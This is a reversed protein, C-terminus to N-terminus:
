KKVFKAIEQGIQIFGFGVGAYYPKEGVSINRGATFQLAGDFFSFGIGAGVQVTSSTTTRFGGVVKGTSDKISPDFDGAFNLLSVNLGIGPSLWGLTTVRNDVAQWENSSDTRILKRSHFTVGITVGPAAVMGSKIEDGKDDRIVGTRRVWFVSPDVSVVTRLKKIAIRFERSIGGNGEGGRAQVLITLTDGDAAKYKRLDITGPALLQVFRRWITPWESDIVTHFEPNGKAALFDTLDEWLTRVTLLIDERADIRRPSAAELFLAVDTKFKAAMGKLSKTDLGFVETGMAEVVFVNRDNTFFDTIATLRPQYGRILARLAAERRTQEGESLRLLSHECTKPAKACEPIVDDVVDKTLYFLNELLAFTEAASRLSVAAQSAQTRADTAIESYNLVEVKVTGASADSRALEAGIALGNMVLDKKDEPSQNKLALEIIIKSDRDARLITTTKLDTFLKAEQAPGYLLIRKAGSEEYIRVYYAPDFPVPTPKQSTQAHASGAVTVLLALQHWRPIM